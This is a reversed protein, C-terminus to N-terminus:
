AVKKYLYKRLKLSLFINFMYFNKNNNIPNKKFEYCENEFQLIQISYSYLYIGAGITYVLNSIKQLNDRYLNPLGCSLFNQMLIKAIPLSLFISEVVLFNCIYPLKFIYITILMVFLKQAVVLLANVKNHISDFLM